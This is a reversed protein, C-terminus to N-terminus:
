KGGSGSPKSFASAPVAHGTASVAEDDGKENPAIPNDAASHLTTGGLGASSVSKQDPNPM